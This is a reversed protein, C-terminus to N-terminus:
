ESPVTTSQAPGSDDSVGAGCTSSLDERPPPPLLVSAIMAIATPATARATPSSPSKDPPPLRVIAQGPLHARGEHETRGRHRKGQGRGGPGVRAEHARHRPRTHHDVARRRDHQERVGLRHLRPEGGDQHGIRGPIRLGRARRAAGGGVRLRQDHRQMSDGLAPVEDIPAHDRDVAMGHAAGECEGHPGVRPRCRPEDHGRDRFRCRSRAQDGRTRDDEDGHHARDPQEQQADRDGPGDHSANGLRTQPSDRDCEAQRRRNSQDRNRHVHQHRGRLKRQARREGESSEDRQQAIGGEPAAVEVELEYEGQEDDRCAEGQPDVARFALLARDGLQEGNGPCDRRSGSRQQNGPERTVRRM